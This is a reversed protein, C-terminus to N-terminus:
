ELDIEAIKGTWDKRIQQASNYGLDYGIGITIGSAGGPWIPHSLSKKYYAGSSIEHKVLQKLGKRSITLTYQAANDEIQRDDFLANEIASLTMPGILGDAPVGLHSQIRKIRKKILRSTM